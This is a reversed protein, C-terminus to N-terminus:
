RGVQAGQRADPSLHVNLDVTRYGLTGHQVRDFCGIRHQTPGDAIVDRFPTACKDTEKGALLIDGIFRQIRQHRVGHRRARLWQQHHARDGPPLTYVYDNAYDYDSSLRYSITLLWSFVAKPHGPCPPHNTTN